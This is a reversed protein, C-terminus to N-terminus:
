RSLYRQPIESEPTEETIQQYKEWVSGMDYVHGRALGHGLIRCLEPMALDQSPLTGTKRIKEVKSEFKVLCPLHYKGEAAPLDSVGSLRVRMIPDFLANSMIQNSKEMYEINHLEERKVSKQCFM